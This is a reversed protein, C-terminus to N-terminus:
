FEGTHDVLYLVLEAVDLTRGDQLMAYDSHTFEDRFGLNQFAKIV